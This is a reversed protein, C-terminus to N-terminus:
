PNGWVFFFPFAGEPAGGEEVQEEEKEEEKRKRGGCRRVVEGGGEEGGGKADELPQMEADGDGANDQRMSM